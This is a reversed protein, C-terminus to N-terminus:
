TRSKDMLRYPVDRLRASEHAAVGGVVPRATQHDLDSVEEIRQPSRQVSTCSLPCAGRPAGRAAFLGNVRRVLRRERHISGQIRHNNVQLSQASGRTSEPTRSRERYRRAHSLDCAREDGNEHVATSEAEAARVESATECVSRIRVLM